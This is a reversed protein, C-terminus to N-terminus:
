PISAYTASLSIFTKKSSRTGKRIFYAAGFHFWLTINCSIYLQDFSCCSPTILVSASFFLILGLCEESFLRCSAPFPFLWQWAAWPPEATWYRDQVEPPHSPFPLSLVCPPFIKSSFNDSALCPPCPPIPAPEWSRCLPRTREPERDRELPDLKCHLGQSEQRWCQYSHSWLRLIQEVNELFTSKLAAFSECSSRPSHSLYACM